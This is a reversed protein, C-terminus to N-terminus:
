INFVLTLKERQCGTKHSQKMACAGPGSGSAIKNLGPGTVSPNNLIIVNQHPLELKVQAAKIFLHYVLILGYASIVFLWNRNTSMQISKSMKVLSFYIVRWWQIMFASQARYHHWVTTSTWGASQNLLLLLLREAWYPLGRHSDYVTM